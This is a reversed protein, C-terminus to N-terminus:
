KKIRYGKLSDELTGISQLQSIVSDILDESVTVQNESLKSKLQEITFENKNMSFVTRSIIASKKRTESYDVYGTM